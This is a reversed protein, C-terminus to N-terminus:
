VHQGNQNDKKFLRFELAVRTMNDEDNIALGHILHSSFVLAQGYSVRSRQLVNSGGWERVMRVRYTNGEVVGGDFTRLVQDEGILHSEPAIPLSSKDTVGSIPIWFNVFQPIYHDNDVGQYIDKHPPNYDTSHPRNIRVIIHMVRGNKPNIDTLSFGLFANLKPIIEMVNFSFDGSFLDRTRAAVKLHDEDSRVFTHYNDLEFGDTSCKLESEVINRISETIGAKLKNFEEESFLDFTAHGEKYWPQEFTIDTNEGSLKESNGFKFDPSGAVSVEYEKENIRFAIKTMTSPPTFNTRTVANVVPQSAKQPHRGFISVFLPPLRSVNRLGNRRM